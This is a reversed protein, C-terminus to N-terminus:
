PTRSTMAWGGTGQPCRSTRHGSSCRSTRPRSAIIPISQIGSSGTGIVGVRMGSFDVGEPPWHGTHYTPGQVSDVGQIEPLKSHSLCGSAMVYFQASITEGKSTSIRWRGTAGDWM